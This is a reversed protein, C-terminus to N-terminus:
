ALEDLQRRAHEQLGADVLPQLIAVESEYSANPDHTVGYKTQLARFSFYNVTRFFGGDEGYPNIANPFDEPIPETGYIAAEKLM